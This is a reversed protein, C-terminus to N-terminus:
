KRFELEQLLLNGSLERFELRDGSEKDLQAMSKKRWAMYEELRKEDEPGSVLQDSVTILYLDPEGQRPYTNALVMYSKIWGKSKAFEQEERWETALFQAYALSGGDKLKIGSVSWYDGWVVPYEDAIASATWACSLVCLALGLLVSSKPNRM